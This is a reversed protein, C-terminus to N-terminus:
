KEKVVYSKLVIKKGRQEHFSGHKSYWKQALELNDFNGSWDELKGRQNVIM